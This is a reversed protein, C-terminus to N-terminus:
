DILIMVGDSRKKRDHRFINYIDTIYGFLIISEDFWTETFLLVQPM